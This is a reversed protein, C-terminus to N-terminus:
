LSSPSYGYRQKFATSFHSFNEFGVDVYADAPRIHKQAILYHAQELRKKLHWQRPPIDFTKRFDRKFTSLSRGTLKAFKEIPVNFIFNRNMFSEIDIKYPENFDFLVKRYVPSLQTLLEIAEKTKLGALTSSLREAQHLYPLLSDFYGKIFSDPNVSLIDDGDYRNQRQIKHETAYARLSDQTLFLNVSELAGTILVIKKM